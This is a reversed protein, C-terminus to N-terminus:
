FGEQIKARVVEIIGGDDAPVETKTGIARVVEEEM